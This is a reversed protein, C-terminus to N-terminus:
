VFNFSSWYFFLLVNSYGDFDACGECSSFFSPIMYIVDMKRTYAAMQEVQVNVKFVLGGEDLVVVAKLKGDSPSLFVKDIDDAWVSRCNTIFKYGKELYPVALLHALSTKHAGPRGGIYCLRYMDLLPTFSEAGILPM